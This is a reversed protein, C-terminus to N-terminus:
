KCKVLETPTLAFTQLLGGLAGATFVSSLKPENQDDDIVKLINAYSAFMIANTAANGVLPSIMGKFFGRGGEHKIQVIAVPHTKKVKM